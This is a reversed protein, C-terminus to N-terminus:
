PMAIAKTVAASAVKPLESLIVACRYGTGEPGGAYIILIDDPAPVFLVRRTQDGPTVEGDLVKVRKLDAVSRGIRPHLYEQIDQKSWDRWFTSAGAITLAIQGQRVGLATDAVSDSTCLSTGFTSAVDAVCDLTAQPGADCRM